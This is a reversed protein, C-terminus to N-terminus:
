EALRRDFFSRISASLKDPETFDWGHTEAFYRVSAGVSDQEMDEEGLIQDLYKESRLKEIICCLSASMVEVLLQHCFTKQERDLYRYNKHAKNINISVTEAFKDLIPDTWDCRVYWLPKSADEIEFVPFMSGTGDIKLIFSDFVGLVFGAENALHREEETPEGPEAIYLAVSFTVEERLKAAPFDIDIEGEVFTEEENENVEAKPMGFTLVPEAGRQRSGPSTWIVSLGLKASECAVGNPGFLQQYGNIAVTRKINLNCKEASWIGDTKLCHIESNLESPEYSLEKNTGDSNMYSFVYKRAKFLKEALRDNLSPYLFIM